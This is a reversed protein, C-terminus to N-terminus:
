KWVKKWSRRLCKSLHELKYIEGSLKKSLPRSNYIPTEVSHISVCRVLKVVNKSLVTREDGNSGEM